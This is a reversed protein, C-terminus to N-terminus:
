MGAKRIVRIEADDSSEEVSFPVNNVPELTGFVISTDPKIGCSQHIPSFPDRCGILVSLM